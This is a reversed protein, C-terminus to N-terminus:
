YTNKAATPVTSVCPGVGSAANAETAPLLRADRRRRLRMVSTGRVETFGAAVADVDEVVEFCSLVTGWSRELEAGSIIGSGWLVESHDDMLLWMLRVLKVAAWHAYLLASCVVLSYPAQLGMTAAAQADQVDEWRFLRYTLRSWFTESPLNREANERALHVAHELGDTATVSAGRRAMHISLLGVGGGLEVVRRGQFVSDPLSEFWRLMAYGQKFLM